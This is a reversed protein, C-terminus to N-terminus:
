RGAESLFLELTDAGWTVEKATKRKAEVPAAAFADLSDPVDEWAGELPSGRVPVFADTVKCDAAAAAAAAAAVHPKPVGSVAPPAADTQRHFADAARKAEHSSIQAQLVTALSEKSDPVIQSAHRRGRSPAAAAAEAARAAIGAAEKADEALFVDLQAKREQMQARLDSAYDRKVAPEPPGCHRKGGKAPTGAGVASGHDQAQLHFAGAARGVAKEAIQAQLECLLNQRPILAMNEQRRRGRQMDADANAGLGVNLGGQPQGQSRIVDAARQAARAAIQEQLECAYSEKDLLAGAKRRGRDPGVSVSPPEDNICANREAIEAAQKAASRSAIQEQLFSAYDAKAEMAQPACRKGVKRGAAASLADGLFGKVEDFGCANADADAKAAHAVDRQAIQERLASAYSEKSLPAMPGGLRQGLKRTAAGAVAGCTANDAPGGGALLGLLGPVSGLDSGRKENCRKTSDEAMQERLASAYSEKSLVACGGRRGSKVANHANTSVLGGFSPVFSSARGGGGGAVMAAM